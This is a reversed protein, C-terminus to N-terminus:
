SGAASLTTWNCGATVAAATDDFSELLVDLPREAHGDLYVPEAAVLGFEALVSVPDITYRLALDPELGTRATLLALRHDDTQTSPSKGPVLTTSGIM